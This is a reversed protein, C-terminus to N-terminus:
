EESKLEDYIKEFEYIQNDLSFKKLQKQCNRLKQKVNEHVSFVNIAKMLEETNHAEILLGTKNNEVIEKLGGMKTAIVPIANKYADIVVRGFPESWLSPVVLVDMKELLSDKQKENLFGVYKIRKDKQECEKLWDELPGNGAITLQINDNKINMFATILFKIGKEEALRGLFVFNIKEKSTNLKHNYIENVKNIDYDIANYVTKFKANEFFNNDKFLNLTFNSPATVYNVKQSCKKNFKSFLDCIINKKECLDNNKIMNIKPCMLYYDRLTHVVPINLKKGIGWIVPSIGYINNVHIVQPSITRIKEYLLNENFKNYIDVGRSIGKKIYGCKRLEIPHYINKLKLRYIKVKNIIEEKNCTNTCIVSVEHGNHVLGEALKQVSIEAGGIIDPYYYTNVILIKM